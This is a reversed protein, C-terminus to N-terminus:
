PAPHASRPRIGSCSGSSRRHLFSVHRRRNLLRQDLVIRLSAEPVRGSVQIEGDILVPATVRCGFVVAPVPQELSRLRNQAIAGAVFEDRHDLLELKGFGANGVHLLQAIPQRFQGAPPDNRDPFEHGVVNEEVM